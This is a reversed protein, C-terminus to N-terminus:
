LAEKAEEFIEEAIELRSQPVTAIKSAAWRKNLEDFFEIGKIRCWRKVYLAEDIRKIRINIEKIKQKDNYKQQNHTHYLLEHINKTSIKKLITKPIVTILDKKLLPLVAAAEETLTFYKINNTHYSGARSLKKIAREFVAAEKEYGNNSDAPMILHHKKLTGLVESLVNYNVGPLIKHILSLYILKHKYLFVLIVAHILKKRERITQIEKLFGLNEELNKRLQTLIYDLDTADETKIRVNKRYTLLFIINSDNNNDKNRVNAPSFKSGSEVDTKPQTFKEVERKGELVITKEREYNVVREMSEELKKKVGDNEGKWTAPDEYIEVDSDIIEEPAVDSDPHNTEIEEVVEGYSGRFGCVRCFYTDESPEESM